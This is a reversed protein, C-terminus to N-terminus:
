KHREKLKALMRYSLRMLTSHCHINKSNDRASHGGCYCAKFKRAREIKPDDGDSFPASRAM